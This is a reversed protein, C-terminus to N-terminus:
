YYNINYIHSKNIKNTDYGGWFIGLEIFAWEKVSCLADAVLQRIAM